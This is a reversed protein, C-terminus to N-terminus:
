TADPRVEPEEPPPPATPPAPPTPPETGGPPPAPLTPLGPAPAMGPPPVPTWVPPPLPRVAPVEASEFAQAAQVSSVYRILGSILLALGPGGYVLAVPLIVDRDGDQYAGVIALTGVGALISGILIEVNGPHDISSISERGIRYTAGNRASVYVAGVDSTVIRAENDPGDVRGITATSACGGSCVLAILAIASVFRGPRRPTPEV